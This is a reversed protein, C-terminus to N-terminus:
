TSSVRRVQFEYLPDDRLSRVDAHDRHLLAVNGQLQRALVPGIHNQEIQM